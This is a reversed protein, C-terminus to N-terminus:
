VHERSWGSVVRIVDTSKVSVIDMASIDWSDGMPKGILILLPIVCYSKFYANGHYSLVHVKDADFFTINSVVFSHM